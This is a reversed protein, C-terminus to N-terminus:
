TASTVRGMLWERTLRIAEELTPTTGQFPHVAQFTHNGGAVEQRIVAPCRAMLEASGARLHAGDLEGQILVVPTKLEQGARQLIAFQEAHRELDELLVLDLPMRQKTRGNLVYARGSRKMEAKEEASYLDVRTIGNWSIVGDVEDPHDMAYILCVGAGRSHGLLFLPRDAARLGPVLGAKVAALLETLDTLEQSYTNRAFKELETFAELEEGVGNHSFNFTVVDFDEALREGLYPFFGWDKFGKYGHCIIVTGRGEEIAPFFTGRLTRDAGWTWEFNQQIPM